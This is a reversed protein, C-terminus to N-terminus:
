RGMGRGMSKAEVAEYATGVDWNTAKQVSMTSVTFEGPDGGGVPIEVLEEDIVDLGSTVVVAELGDLLPSDTHLQHVADGDVEVVLRPDPLVHEKLVANYGAEGAAEMEQNLRALVKQWNQATVETDVGCDALFEVLETVAADRSTHVKVDDAGTLTTWIKM